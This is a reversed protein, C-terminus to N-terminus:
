SKLNTQLQLSGFQKSCGTLIFVEPLKKGGFGRKTGREM